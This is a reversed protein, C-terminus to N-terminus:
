LESHVVDPMITNNSQPQHCTVSIGPASVWSEEAPSWLYWPKAGTDFPLVDDGPANAFRPCMDGGADGEEAAERPSSTSLLWEGLVWCFWLFHHAPGKYWPRGGVLSLQRLYHGQAHQAAPLSDVTVLADCTGGEEEEPAQHLPCGEGGSASSWTAHHLAHASLDDSPCPLWAALKRGEQIASNPRITVKCRGRGGPVWEPHHIVQVPLGEVSSLASSEKPFQSFDIDMLAADILKRALPFSTAPAVPRSSKGIWNVLFTLRREQSNSAGRGALEECCSRPDLVGHLLAGDFLLYRFRQPFLLWAERLSAPSISRLKDDIQELPDSDTMAPLIRNSTAITPTGHDGLFLVSAALPMVLRGQRKLMWTLHDWHPQPPTQVSNDQVWFEATETGPPAFVKLAMLLLLIPNASAQQTDTSISTLPLYLSFPGGEFQDEDGLALRETRNRALAGLRRIAPVLGQWELVPGRLEWAAVKATEGNGSATAVYRVVAVCIILRRAYCNLDLM